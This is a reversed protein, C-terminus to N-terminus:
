AREKLFRVLPALAEKSTIDYSHCLYQYMESEEGKQAKMMKRFLAMLIRNGAGMREYSLGGPLYFVPAREREQPTFGHAIAEEVQPEGVPTAGTAFIAVTKGALTPIREKLWKVGMINGAHFWGGFVVTGYEALAATDRERYPVLDCPMEEALWKAYRETFGTNSNYVVLVKDKM